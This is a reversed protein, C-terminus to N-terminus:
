LIGDRRGSARQIRRAPGFRKRWRLGRLGDSLGEMSLKIGRQAAYRRVSCRCDVGETYPLIGLDLVRLHVMSELIKVLEKDFPSARPHFCSVETFGLTWFSNSLDLTEVLPSAEAILALKRLDLDLLGRFVLRRALPFGALLNDPLSLGKVYEDYDEKPGEARTHYCYLRALTIAQLRNGKLAVALRQSASPDDTFEELTLEETDELRLPLLNLATSLGAKALNLSFNRVVYEPRKDGKVRCPASVVIKLTDLQPVGTGGLGRTLRRLVAQQYKGPLKPPLEIYMSSPIRGRLHKGVFYAYNADRLLVTVHEVQPCLRLMHAQWSWAEVAQDIANSYENTPNRELETAVLHLWPLTQVARGLHPHKALTQRLRFAKARTKSSIPYFSATFFPDRYLIRQVSPVFARSSLMFNSLYQSPGAFRRSILGRRSVSAPVYACRSAM